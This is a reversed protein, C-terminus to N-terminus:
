LRLDYHAILTETGVKSKKLAGSLTLDRTRLSTLRGPPTSLNKVQGPLGREVKFCPTIGSGLIVSVPVIAADSSETMASTQDHKNISIIVM